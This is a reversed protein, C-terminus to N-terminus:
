DEHYTWAYRHYLRLDVDEGLRGNDVNVVFVGSTRASGVIKLLDKDADIGSIGLWGRQVYGNEKLAKTINIVDDILNSYDETVNDRIKLLSFYGGAVITPTVLSIIGITLWFKTTKKM